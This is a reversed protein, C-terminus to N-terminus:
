QSPFTIELSYYFFRHTKNNIKYTGIISELSPCFGIFFSEFKIKSLYSPRRLFTFLYEETADCKGCYKQFKAHKYVVVRYKYRTM